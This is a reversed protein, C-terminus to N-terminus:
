NITIRQFTLLQIAFLIFIFKLTIMSNGISRCNLLLLFQNLSFLSLYRLAFASNSCNISTSIGFSLCNSLLMSMVDEFSDILSANTWGNQELQTNANTDTSYHDFGDMFLVAM